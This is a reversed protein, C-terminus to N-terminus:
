GQGIMETTETCKWLCWKQGEKNFEEAVKIADKRNYRTAMLRWGNGEHILVEYRTITTRM